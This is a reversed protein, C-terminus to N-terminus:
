RSDTEEIGDSKRSDNALANEGAKELAEIVDSYKAEPYIELWIKFLARKQEDINDKNEVEIKTIHHQKIKPLYGAFEQWHVLPELQQVLDTVEPKEKEM